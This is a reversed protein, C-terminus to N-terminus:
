PRAASMWMGHFARMLNTDLTFADRIQGAKIMEL